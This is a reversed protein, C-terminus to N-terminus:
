LWPTRSTVEWELDGEGANRLTMFFEEVLGREMHDFEVKPMSVKLLPGDLADIHITEVPSQLGDKKAFVPVDGKYRGVFLGKEIFHGTREDRSRWRVEKTVERKSGDSYTGIASMCLKKGVHTSTSSVLNIEVLKPRYRENSDLFVTVFVPVVRTGVSSTIVIEAKHRGPSLDRPRAMVSVVQRGNHKVVGSYKDLELWPDIWKVMWKMEERGNNIIEISAVGTKTDRLIGFKIDAPKVSFIQKEEVIRNSQAFPDTLGAFMLIAAFTSIIIIKTKLVIIDRKMNMISPKTFLGVEANRQM